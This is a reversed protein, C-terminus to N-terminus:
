SKTTNTSLCINKKYSQSRNNLDVKKKNMFKKMPSTLDDMKETMELFPIMEPYQPVNKSEGGQSSHVETVLKHVDPPTSFPRCM